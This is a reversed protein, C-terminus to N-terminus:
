LTLIYQTLWDFTVEGLRRRKNARRCQRWVPGADLVSRESKVQGKITLGIALLQKARMDMAEIICRM